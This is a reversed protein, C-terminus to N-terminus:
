RRQKAAHARRVRGFYRSSVIEAPTVGGALYTAMDDARFRRIRGIRDLERCPLEGKGNLDYFTSRKIQLLRCVDAITLAPILATM